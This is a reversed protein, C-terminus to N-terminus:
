RSIVITRLFVSSSNTIKLHYVGAPLDETNIQYSASFFNAKKVLIGLTNYLELYSNGTQYISNDIKLIASSSVPNPVISIADSNGLEDDVSSGGKGTGELHATMTSSASTIIIDAQSTGEATPNYSIQLDRCTGPLLTDPLAPATLQFETSNLSIESVFVTDCTWNCYAKEFKKSTQSGLNVEGFNFNNSFLYGANVKYPKVQCATSQFEFEATNCLSDSSNYIVSFSASEGTSLNVPGTFSVTFKPNKSTIGTVILPRNKAAVSLKAESNTGPAVNLFTYNEPQLEVAPKLADPVYYDVNQSVNNYKTLTIKANGGNCDTVWEISCSPPPKLYLSSKLNNLVPSMNDQNIGTYLVGGSNESLMTLDDNNSYSGIIYSNIVMKQKSAALLIENVKFAGSTANDHGGDTFFLTFPQYKASKGLLIAGPNPAAQSLFASNFDKTGTVQIQDIKSKLATKDGSFPSILEPSTAGSNFAIIAAEFRNGPLSDIFKKLATKLAALKIPSTPNAAEIKEGMSQSKDVVLIFSFRYKDEQCSINSITRVKNDDEVKIDGPSFDSIQNKNNDFAKFEAIINPFNSANVNFVEISQSFSNAALALFIIAVLYFKKFTM